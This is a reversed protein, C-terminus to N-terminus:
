ELMLWLRNLRLFIEMLLFFPFGFFLCVVSSLLFLLVCVSFFGVGVQKYHCQTWTTGGGKSKYNLMGGELVGAHQTYAPTYMV